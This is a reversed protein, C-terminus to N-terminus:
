RLRPLPLQAKVREWISEASLLRFRDLTYLVLPWYVAGAIVLRAWSPISNPVLSLLPLPLFVASILLVKGLAPFPLAECARVGFGRAITTLNFPVNWLYLTVLMGVVAGLYGLLWVAAACLVASLLLDVVSRFLIKRSYGLAMLAAGYTVIRVPLTFLYLRFPVISEHYKASYLCDILPGAMALFFVFAPLLIAASRVAAGRFLQLAEAKKGQQCLKTMEALVVTTISGTVIGILPLEFAGVSYIAFEAQSCMTSVVVNSLQLTLTGLITALGLPVSYKVMAWLMEAQPWRMSGGCARFMLWLSPPLLLGTMGVNVLVLAEPRRLVFCSGIVASGLVLRSFVNYIALEKVRDKAVLCAELASSPLAFLPYPALIKLTAELSPNNFHWALLKAGGLLLFMTFVMGMGALLLLNGALVTREKEPERPLFYYLALPLALTLLPAAFNYALFTQRYTAFDELSLIRALVVGSALGVLQTLV